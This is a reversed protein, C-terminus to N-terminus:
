SNINNQQLLTDTRKAWKTELESIRTELRNIFIFEGPQECFFSDILQLASKPKLHLSECIPSIVNM